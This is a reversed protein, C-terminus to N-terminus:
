WWQSSPYEIAAFGLFGKSLLSHLSKTRDSYMQDNWICKWKYVNCDASCFTPFFSLGALSSSLNPSKFFMYRQRINPNLKYIKFISIKRQLRVGSWHKSKTHEKIKFNATAQYGYQDCTYIVGKHKVQEHRKLDSNTSVQIECQSCTFKIGDHKSQGSVKM